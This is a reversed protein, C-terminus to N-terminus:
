LLPPGSTGDTDDPALDGRRNRDRLVEMRRKMAEVEDPPFRWHGGATQFAGPFHGGALWNKVTNPSSLGLIKAAETSTLSKKPSLAPRLAALRGVLDHRGAQRLAEAVDAYLDAISASM